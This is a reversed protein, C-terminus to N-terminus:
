AAEWAANVEALRAITVAWAARRLRHHARKIGASLAHTPRSPFSLLSKGDHAFCVNIGKPMILLPGGDKPAWLVCDTWRFVAGWRESFISVGTPGFRERGPEFAFHILDFSTEKATLSWTDIAARDLPPGALFVASAIDDAFAPDLPHCLLDAAAITFRNAIEESHQHTM